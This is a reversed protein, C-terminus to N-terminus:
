KQNANDKKMSAEQIEKQCKENKKLNGEITDRSSGEENHSM